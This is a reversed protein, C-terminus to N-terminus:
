RDREAIYALLIPRWKRGNLTKVLHHTNCLSLLNGRSSESKMGMGHSARVHDLQIGGTCHGLM